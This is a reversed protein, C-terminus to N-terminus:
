NASKYIMKNTLLRSKIDQEDIPIKVPFSVLLINHQNLWNTDIGMHSLQNHEDILGNFVVVDPNAKLISPKSDIGYNNQIIDDVLGSQQLKAHRDVYDLMPLRRRYQLIFQDTDLAVTLHSCIKRCNQLFQIHGSHFLDFTGRTYLKIQQNM